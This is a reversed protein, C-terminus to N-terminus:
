GTAPHLGPQTLQEIGHRRRLEALMAPGEPGGRNLNALEEFYHENGAPALQFLVRAAAPGPNGFAHPCGPPVLMFSGPGGRIVRSGDRSEWALWNGETRVQPEFAFLDLEGELIYFFEEAALHSHAGVDFGPGVITEFISGAAGHMVGAKLTPAGPGLYQGGGPPLVFGDAMVAAGEVDFV